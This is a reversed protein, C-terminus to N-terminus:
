SQYCTRKEEFINKREVWLKNMFREYASKTNEFYLLVQQKSSAMHFMVESSFQLYIIFVYLLIPGLLPYLQIFWRIFDLISKLM